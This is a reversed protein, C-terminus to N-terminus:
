KKDIYGDKNQDFTKMAEKAESPTVIHHIGLEMFLENFFYAMELENLKGTKQKDFKLFM